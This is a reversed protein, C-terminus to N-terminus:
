TDADSDHYSAAFFADLAMLSPLRMTQKVAVTATAAKAATLPSTGSADAISFVDCNAAL